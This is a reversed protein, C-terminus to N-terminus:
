EHYESWAQMLEEHRAAIARELINLARRSFGESDMWELTELNFRARAATGFEVHCHAPQHDRAHIKVKVGNKLFVVPVYKIYVLYINIALPFNPWIAM